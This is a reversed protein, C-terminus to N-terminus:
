RSGVIVKVIIFTHFINKFVFFGYYPQAMKVNM